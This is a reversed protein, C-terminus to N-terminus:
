EYKRLMEKYKKIEDDFLNRMHNLDESNMDCVRWNPYKDILKVIYGEKAHNGCISKPCLCEDCDMEVDDCFPCKGNVYAFSDKYWKFDLSAYLLEIAHEIEERNM